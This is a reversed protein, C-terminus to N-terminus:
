RGNKMQIAIKKPKAADPVNRQLSVTLIGNRVEASTVEMYEGLTFVREFGRTSIGKHLYEESQRSDIPKAIITLQKDHVSVELQDQDFGAVAIEVLYSDDSTKVINYPPYGTDARATSTVLDDFLRDLGITARYFPTFDYQKM